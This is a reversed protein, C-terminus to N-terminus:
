VVVGSKAELEAEDDVVLHEGEFLDANFDTRGSMFLYPKASRGGFIETLLMQMLSKAAGRPGAMALVQGQMWKRQHFSELGRKVWGYFYPRQDVGETNFMGDIISRLLPWEGQVPLILRPSETV